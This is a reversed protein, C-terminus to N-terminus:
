NVQVKNNSSELYQNIFKDIDIASGSSEIQSDVNKSSENHRKGASKQNSQKSNHIDSKSDSMSSTKLTKKRNKGMVNKTMYVDEHKDNSISRVQSERSSGRVARVNRDSRKVQVQGQDRIHKQQQVNNSMRVKQAAQQKNNSILRFDKSQYIPCVISQAKTTKSFEYDNMNYLLNQKNEQLIGLEQKERKAMNKGASM